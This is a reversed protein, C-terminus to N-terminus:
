NRVAKRLCLEGYEAGAYSGSNGIVLQQTTGNKVELGDTTTTGTVDVGTSTTAVKAANDHFLTVAGNATLTAMAELGTNSTIRVNNEGALYLDGTGSDLVYSDNGSHYIQLDSGAGFVAKDNDGFNIDASTTMGDTTIVGTVDVGTSTTSLRLSTDHYLNVAGDALFDAAIEGNNVKIKFDKNANLTLLNTDTLISGRETLGSGGAFFQLLTGDGTDRYIQLASNTGAQHIELPNAALALCM